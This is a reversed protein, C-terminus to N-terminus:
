SHCQVSTRSAAAAARADITPSSAECAAAQDVNGSHDLDTATLADCVGAVGGTSSESFDSRAIAVDAIKLAVVFDGAAKDLHRM